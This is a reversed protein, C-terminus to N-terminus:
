MECAVGDGDGDLGCVGQDLVRFNRDPIRLLRRGRTHDHAICKPRAM